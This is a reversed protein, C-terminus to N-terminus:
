YKSQFSKGMNKENAKMIRNFECHAIKKKNDQVINWWKDFEEMYMSSHGDLYKGLGQHPDPFPWNGDVDGSKSERVYHGTYEDNGDEFDEEDLMDGIQDISYLYFKIFSIEYFRYPIPVGFFM